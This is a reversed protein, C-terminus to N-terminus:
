LFDPVDWGMDEADEQEPTKPKKWAYAYHDCQYKPTFQLDITTQADWANWSEGQVDCRQLATSQAAQVTLSLTEEWYTELEDYTWGGRTLMLDISQNLERCCAAGYVYVIVDETLREDPLPYEDSQFLWDTLFGHTEWRM